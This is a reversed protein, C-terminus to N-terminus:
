LVIGRGYIWPNMCSKPQNKKMFVGIKENLIHVRELFRRRELEVKREQM